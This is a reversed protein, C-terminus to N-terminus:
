KVPIIRVTAGVGALTGQARAATAHDVGTLLTSPTSDALAVASKLKTGTLDRIGKIVHIKKDGVEDLIVAYM